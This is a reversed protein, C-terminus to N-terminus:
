CVKWTTLLETYFLGKRAEALNRAPQRQVRTCIANAYATDLVFTAAPDLPRCFRGVQSALQGLAEIQARAATFAIKMQLIVLLSYEEVGIGKEGGLVEGMDIVWLAPADLVASEMAVDPEPEWVATVPLTSGGVTISPFAAQLLAALATAFQALPEM